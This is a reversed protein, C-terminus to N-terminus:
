HKIIRIIRRQYIEVKGAFTSSSSLYIADDEVRHIINFERHRINLVSRRPEAKNQPEFIADFIETDNKRM